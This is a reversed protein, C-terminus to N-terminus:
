LEPAQDWAQFDLAIQNMSGTIMNYLTNQKDATSVFWTESLNGAYNSMQAMLRAIVRAVENINTSNKFVNTDPLGSTDTAM